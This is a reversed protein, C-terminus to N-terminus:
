YRAHVAQLVVALTAAEDLDSNDIVLADGAPRLPSAERTSDRRDRAEVARTLEALDPKKGMDKLQKYRRQARVAPRATLYLKLGATPFVVTGMDRGDAVLGPPQRYSRQWALMAQRVVPLAAVRSAANGCDESRLLQGVDEGDLMISPQARTPLRYSASLQDVLALLAAEDDLALANKLAAYALLRYLAGSDLHHWGLTDALQLSVTGKGSGSPGDVTIVPSENM